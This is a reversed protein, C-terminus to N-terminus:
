VETLKFGECDKAKGNEKILWDDFYFCVTNKCKTVSYQECNSCVRYRKKDQKM